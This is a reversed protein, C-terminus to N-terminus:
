KRCHYANKNHINIDWITGIQLIGVAVHLMTWQPCNRSIAINSDKSHESVNKLFDRASDTEFLDCKNKVFSDHAM